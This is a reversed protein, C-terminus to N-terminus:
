LFMIFINYNIIISIVKLFYNIISLNKKILFYNIISINKKDVLPMRNEVMSGYVIWTLIEIIALIIIFFNFSFVFIFSIM